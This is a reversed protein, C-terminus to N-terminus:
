LVQGRDVDLVFGRGHVVFVRDGGVDGSAEASASQPATSLMRSMSTATRLITHKQRRICLAHLHVLDDSPLSAPRLHTCVETRQAAGASTSSCSPLWPSLNAERWPCFPTMPRMTGSCSKGNESVPQRGSRMMFGCGPQLVLGAFSGRSGKRGRELEPVAERRPHRHPLHQLEDPRLSGFRFSDSSLCLQVSDRPPPPEPLCTQWHSQKQRSEQEHSRCSM